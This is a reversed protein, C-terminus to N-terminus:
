PLIHCFASLIAPPIAAHSPTRDTSGNQEAVASVDMAAAADGKHTLTARESLKLAYAAQESGPVLPVLAPLPM